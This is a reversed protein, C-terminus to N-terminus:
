RAQPKEPQGEPKSQEKLRQILKELAEVARRRVADDEPSERLARLAAEPDPERNLGPGGPRPQRAAATNGPGADRVPTATLNAEPQVPGVPKPPLSAGPRVPPPAVPGSGTKEKLARLDNQMVEVQLKLIDVERRLLELETLPRAEARKEAPAPDGAVRDQGAARFAVGGAGLLVAVVGVAVYVKLKTMLMARLVENMLVAVPTAVGATKGVAVLAAAKVTTVALPAPVAASAGEALAVALAGGSLALGCRVLRRALMRRATALRSALTGELLGLQRAAERRTKCELDCLVIPARYKEPLASLERDLLPQWDQAEAPPVEPHPMDEVQRETARRKAARAKARLATRYAVGYLFSAVAERKVVSAAKRALVLFAVQFADEADDANGLLRRCVGLVMPGHRRVLAAFAAEERGDIFRALLQGDTLGGDALGLHELARRLDDARM